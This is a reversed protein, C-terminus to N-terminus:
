VIRLFNTVYNLAKSGQKFVKLNSNVYFIHFRLFYVLKIREFRMLLIKRLHYFSPFFSQKLKRFIRSLKRRMGDWNFNFEVSVSISHFISHFDLPYDVWPLLLLFTSEMAVQQHQELHFNISLQKMERKIILM